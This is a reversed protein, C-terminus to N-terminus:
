NQGDPASDVPPAGILTSVAPVSVSVSVPGPLLVPCDPLDLHEFAVDKMALM